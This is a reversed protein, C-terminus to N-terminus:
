GSIKAVSPDGCCRKYKKGSGCPCRQNRSPSRAPATVQRGSQAGATLGGSEDSWPRDPFMRDHVERVWDDDPDEPFGQAQRVRRRGSLLMYASEFEGGNLSRKGGSTFWAIAQREDGAHEFTEGALEYTIWDDPDDRRAQRFEALGEDAHGAEVLSKALWVRPPLNENDTEEGVARRAVDVAEDHRDFHTLTECATILVRAPTVDDLLEPHRAAELLEQVVRDPTGDDVAEGLALDLEDENIPTHVPNITTTRKESM